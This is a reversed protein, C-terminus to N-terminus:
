SCLDERSPVFGKPVILCDRRASALQQTHGGLQAGRKTLSGGKELGVVSSETQSFWFSFGWPSQPPSPTM